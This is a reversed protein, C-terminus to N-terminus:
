GVSPLDQLPFEAFDRWLQGADVASTAVCALEALRTRRETIEGAGGFLSDTFEAQSAAQRRCGLAAAGNITAMELVTAPPLDQRHKLLFQVEKWLSLDPNSARSDTGLAVNVGAAMLQAVPHERHRFFHHTRPCYVVSLNAHRGVAEIEDAQLDNGHVLLGRPASALLEILDHVPENGSWPFLGPMWLGAAQLTEAFPGTGAVLLEREDPSECVHMALKCQWQKSQRVCRDILSWPTSYPAHPSIAPAIGGRAHLADFQQLAGRFRDEARQENLGLVEAFSMVAPTSEDSTEVPYRSPSTAIDGILITGAQHCEQLGLAIAANRQEETAVGRAAIVQGIWASLPVGPEGIPAQCDSFELHTHANIMKPLVAVEGFDIMSATPEDCRDLRGVEVVVGNVVRLFGNQIVPRNIPVIWAARYVAQQASNSTQQGGQSDVDQPQRDEPHNDM